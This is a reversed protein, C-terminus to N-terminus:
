DVVLISAGGDRTVRQRTKIVVADRGFHQLIDKDCDWGEGRTVTRLGSPALVVAQGTQLKVVKEFAEDSDMKAAVHKEVHALWSPSSFRHLFAVSCLDLLIPPVVTPEQTSVIVRMGLHRQQRILSSLEKTLGSEGGNSALYKHAEDVVLVKGTGIKARVFLRVLIEFFTCASSSDIFPDSLDVITLQGADFRQPAARKKTKDVFSELLEMRQKLGNLQAPQLDRKKVELKTRFAGYSYDEGLERLISLVTQMYLPASEASEIAMLSLFARADLEAKNFLLPEVVVHPGVKAYVAQMTRLSSAAVYVVIKPANITNIIPSGLWAAESPQGGSGGEGFHLVLGSLSKELHGTAPYGSILMNELIVSVTHSKGSGQVGCVLASFPANTNLYIRPDSSSESAVVAGLLGRQPFADKAGAALYAGRTVLPATCLEHDKTSRENLASHNLLQLEESDSHDFGSDVSGDNSRISPSRTTSDKNDVYYEDTVDSLYSRAMKTSYHPPTSLQLTISGEPEYLAYSVIADRSSLGFEPNSVFYLVLLLVDYGLEPHRYM